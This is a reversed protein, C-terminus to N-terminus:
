LQHIARRKAFYVSSFNVVKPAFQSVILRDRKQKVLNKSLVIIVPIYCTQSWLELNLCVSSVTQFTKDAVLLQCALKADLHFLVM